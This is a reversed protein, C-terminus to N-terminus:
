NINAQSATVTVADALGSLSIGGEKNNSTGFTEATTSLPIGVKLTITATAGPQVVAGNTLGDVTTKFEFGNATAQAVNADAGDVNATLKAAVTGTYEVTVTKTYYDGPRLNSYANSDSAKVTLNNDANTDDIKANDSKKLSSYTWDSTVSKDLSVTGTSLTIDSAINTSSTFYAYTGYSAVGILLLALLLLAYKNKKNKKIEM